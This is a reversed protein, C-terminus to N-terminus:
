SSSDGSDGDYENVEEDRGRGKQRFNLSFIGRIVILIMVSDFSKM